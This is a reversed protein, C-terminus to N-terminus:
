PTGDQGPTVAPTDLEDEDDDPMCLYGGCRMCTETDIGITDHEWQDCTECYM